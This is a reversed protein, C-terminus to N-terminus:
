GYFKKEVFPFYRIFFNATRTIITKIAPHSAAQPPELPLVAPLVALLEDAADPEADSDVAGGVDEEEEEDEEEFEDDEAEDEDAEGESEDGGVAAAPGVGEGVATTPM